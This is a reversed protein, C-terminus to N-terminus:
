RYRALVGSIDPPTWGPPKQLKGNADLEGGAKALNSRAIENAVPQRPIGYTLRTGENVFDIDGLADAVKVPDINFGPGTRQWAVWETVQRWVKDRLNKPAGHAELLELFEETVLRLRLACEDATPETLQIRVPYGFAQHFKTVQQTLDNARRELVAETAAAQLRAVQDELHAIRDNM